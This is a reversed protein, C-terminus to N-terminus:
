LAAAPSRRGAGVPQEDEVDGHAGEGADGGVLEISAAAPQVAAAAQLAMRAPMWSALARDRICMESGVLSASM